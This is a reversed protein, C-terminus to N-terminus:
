QLQIEAKVDWNARLTELRREFVKEAQAKTDYNAPSWKGNNDSDEIIRLSYDGPPFAKFDHKFVTTKEAKITEVIEKKLLLELIYNKQEDLNELTLLINGFNDLSVVQYNIILTDKNTIGYIDQVADPLFTLQYPMKEKWKETLVLTRKQKKEISFKAQLVQQSSDRTFKIKELDWNAIPHNFTIKAKRTPNVKQVGFKKNEIFFSDSVVFKEKSKVKISITDISEEGQLFLQWPETMDTDYWFLLSDKKVEQFVFKGITDYDLQIDDPTRNFTMRILGYKDQTSEQLRLKAEQNSINLQLNTPQQESNVIILTDLFGMRETDKTYIYDLGADELAFIKFTDARLNEITFAGNEDTKAFYFPRETRVVSDALNDYLMVLIDKTSKGSFADVVSGKVSLSDIADGTSFVYRLETPNNETIDRIAEGFNIVYTADEKLEEREDFNFRISKNKVFVKPTYRLPPSVVVQSFANKVQVWEDFEFRLEQKNFNTQLNSSSNLTDLVPADNDKGGGKPSVIQACSTLFILIFFFVIKQLHITMSKLRLM